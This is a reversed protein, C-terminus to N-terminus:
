AIQSFRHHDYWPKPSNQQMQASVVQRRQHLLLTQSCGSSTQSHVIFRLFIHIMCCSFLYQSCLDKSFLYKVLEVCNDTLRIMMILQSLSSWTQLETKPLLQIFSLTIYYKSMTKWYKITSIWRSVAIIDKWHHWKTKRSHFHKVADTWASHWSTALLRIMLSIDWHVIHKLQDFM